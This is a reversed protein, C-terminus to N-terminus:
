FIAGPGSKLPKGTITRIMFCLIYSEPWHALSPLKGFSKPSFCKESLFVCVHSSITGKGGKSMILIHECTVELKKEWKTLKFVASGLILYIHKLTCFSPFVSAIM